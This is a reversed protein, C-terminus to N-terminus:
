FRPVSQADELQAVFRGLAINEYRKIIGQPNWLINYAVMDGRDAYIEASAGYAILQGWETQLPTSGTTLLQTNVIFGQLSVQYTQDPVPM